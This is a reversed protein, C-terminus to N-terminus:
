PSVQSNNLWFLCSITCTINNKLYTSVEPFKDFINKLWNQLLRVLKETTHITILVHIYLVISAEMIALPNDINVVVNLKVKITKTLQSWGVM